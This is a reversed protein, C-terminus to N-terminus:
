AAYYADVAWRVAEEVMEHHRNDPYGDSERVASKVLIIAREPPIETRRLIAAYVRVSDRLGDRLQAAQALIETSERRTLELQRRLQM